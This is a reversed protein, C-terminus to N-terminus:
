QSFFWLFHGSSIGWRSDHIFSVTDSAIPKVGRSNIYPPSAGRSNESNSGV